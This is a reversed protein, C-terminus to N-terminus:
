DEQTRQRQLSPEDNDFEWGDEVDDDVESFTRANAPGEEKKGTNGIKVDRTGKVQRRGTAKNKNAVSLSYFFSHSLSGTNSLM